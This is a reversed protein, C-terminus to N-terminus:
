SSYQIYFKLHSWVQPKRDLKTGSVFSEAIDLDYFIV